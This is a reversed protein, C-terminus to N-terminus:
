PLETFAQRLPSLTARVSHLAEPSPDALRFLCYEYLRLLNTATDKAGPNVMTALACIAQQAEALREPSAPPQLRILAADCLEVALEAPTATELPLRYANLWSATM